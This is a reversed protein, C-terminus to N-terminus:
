LSILGDEIVVEVAFVNERLNAVRRGHAAVVRHIGVPFM